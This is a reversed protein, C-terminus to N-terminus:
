NNKKEPSIHTEDFNKEELSNTHNGFFQSKSKRRDHKQGIRIAKPKGQYGHNNDPMVRQHMVEYGGVYAKVSIREKQEKSLMSLVFFQADNQQVKARSNETRARILTKKARKKEEDTLVRETKFFIDRSRKIFNNNTKFLPIEDISQLSEIQEDTLKKKNIKTISKIDKIEHLDPKNNERWTVKTLIHGDVNKQQIYICNAQINPTTEYPENAVKIERDLKEVPEDTVTACGRLVIEKLDPMKDAITGICDLYAGAQDLHHLFSIKDIKEIKLDKKMIKKLNDFTMLILANGNKDAKIARMQIVKALIEDMRGVIILLEINEPGSKCLALMEHLKMKDPSFADDRTYTVLDILKELRTKNKRLESKIRSYEKGTEEHIVSLRDEKKDISECASCIKKWTSYSKMDVKKDTKSVLNGSLISIESMTMHQLKEQSFYNLIENKATITISKDLVLFDLIETLEKQRNMTQRFNSLAEVNKEITLKLASIKQLIGGYNNFDFQLVKQNNSIFEIKKM